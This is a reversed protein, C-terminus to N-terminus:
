FFGYVKREKHAIARDIEELSCDLIISLMFRQNKNPVIWCRILAEAMLPDVRLWQGIATFPCRKFKCIDELTEVKPLIMRPKVKM